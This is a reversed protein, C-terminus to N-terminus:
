QYKGVKLPAHVPKCFGYINDVFLNLVTNQKGQAPPLKPKDILLCRYNLSTHRIYICYSEQAISSQNNMYDIVCQDVSLYFSKFYLYILSIPNSGVCHCIHSQQGLWITTMCDEYIYSYGSLDNPPICNRSM